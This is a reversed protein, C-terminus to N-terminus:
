AGVPQSNQLPEDYLVDEYGSRASAIVRAVPPSSGPSVNVTGSKRSLNKPPVDLLPTPYELEEPVNPGVLEAATPACV